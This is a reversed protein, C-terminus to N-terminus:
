RKNEKGIWNAFKAITRLHRRKKYVGDGERGGEINTNGETTLAWDSKISVVFGTHAIRKLSPFYIGFLDAPKPKRTLRNAPFLAPTWGTRPKSLGAQGYVWSTYAGCWAHGKPLGIYKLYHEVREGDNKGTKERVGLEREAIALVSVRIKEEALSDGLLDRDPMGSSCIVPICIIGLLLKITEM